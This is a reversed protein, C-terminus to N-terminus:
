IYFNTVQYVSLMDGHKTYVTHLDLRTDPLLSSSNNISDLVPSIDSSLVSDVSDFLSGSILEIDGLMQVRAINTFNVQYARNNLHECRMSLTACFCQM